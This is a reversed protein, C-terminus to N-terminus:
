SALWGAIESDTLPKELKAYESRAAQLLHRMQVSQGADAALFAANMAINRINGGAINLRALKDYDLNQTPVGVPFIRQWIVTRQAADPFPFPVVFRLRRLFATDLANKLNTTLIALGSYAEMRQLLYSVEINAYRDHSDKVESRKGFLADAEDFLLVAGSEEAADFLKRLNKETEGIYKSVVSSLDIRFLDLRLEGALVEAALTKGTGSSGAFLATIGSGRAGQECFGWQTYVQHRQRVHAAIEHLTQEQAKPLVLDEWSATVRVPQALAELRPRAHARCADWVARPLDEEACELGRVQAAASEIALAGMRFQAALPAIRAELIPPLPHLAQRWLVVQAEVGPSGIEFNLSPRRSFVRRERTSVFVLGQTQQALRDFSAEKARAEESDDEADLLLAAGSLIAEREWLRRLAEGEALATPAARLPLIAFQLGLRACVASAIAQREASDGGILQLLPLSTGTSSRRLWASAIRESIEQHGSIHAERAEEWSLTGKLRADPYQLGTLYHLIREDLRLPCLTLTRGEGLHVLQWERLPATPLLASWHAEPLAALALSFTPNLMQPDNQAAACMRALGADLEVGACLLVIDREFASLGFTECLTMLAPPRELDGPLASPTSLPIAAESGSDQGRASGRQLLNRLRELECSLYTQNKTAWDQRLPATPRDVGKKM